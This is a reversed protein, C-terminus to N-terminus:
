AARRQTRLSDCTARLYIYTLVFDTKNKNLWKLVSLANFDDWWENKCVDVWAEGNHTFYSHHGTCLCRGNRLDHRIAHSGRTILHAGQMVSTCRIHYKGALRCKFGDRIRVVASWLEDCIKLQKRRGLRAFELPTLKDIQKLFKEVAKTM